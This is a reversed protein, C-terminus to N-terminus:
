TRPRLFVTTGSKQRLGEGTDILLTEACTLIVHSYDCTDVLRANEFHGRITGRVSGIWKPYGRRILLPDPDPCDPHVRPLGNLCGRLSFDRIGSERILSKMDCLKQVVSNVFDAARFMAFKRLVTIIPQLANPL